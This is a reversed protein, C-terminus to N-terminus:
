KNREQLELAQEITWNLRNIRAYASTYKINYQKCWDKLCKTVGNITFNINCNKNRSQEKM